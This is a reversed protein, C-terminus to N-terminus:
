IKSLKVINCIKLQLGFFNQISLTNLKKVLLAALMKTCSYIYIHFNVEDSLGKKQAELIILFFM